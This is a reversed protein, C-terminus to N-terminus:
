QWQGLQKGTELLKASVNDDGLAQSVLAGCVYVISRILESSINTLKSSSITPRPVYLLQELHLSGGIPIDFELVRVGDAVWTIEDDTPDDSYVPDEEPLVMTTRQKHLLAVIPRMNNSRIGPYRSKLRAYLPNDVTIVDTVPYDWEEMKFSVMRLFDSPLEYEGTHDSATASTNLWYYGTNETDAEYDVGSTGTSPQTSTHTKPPFRYPQDTSEDVLDGGKVCSILWLPANTEVLEAADVLKSEILENLTLTDVDGLTTLATSTHNQNLVVRVQQQLDSVNVDM